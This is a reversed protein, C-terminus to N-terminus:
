GGAWSILERTYVFGIHSPRTALILIKVPADLDVARDHRPTNVSGREELSVPFDRDNMASM